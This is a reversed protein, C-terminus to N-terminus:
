VTSWCSFSTKLRTPSTPKRRRRISAAPTLFKKSSSKPAASAANINNCDHSYKVDIPEADMFGGGRTRAQYSAALHGHVKVGSPQQQGKNKGTLSTSYETNAIANCDLVRVTVITDPHEPNLQLSTNYRVLATEVTSQLKDAAAKQCADTPRSASAKVNFSAGPLKAAAPLRRELTVTTKAGLKGTFGQAPLAAPFALASAIALALASPFPRRASLHNM